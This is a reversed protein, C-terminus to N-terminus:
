VLELVQGFEVAILECRKGILHLPQSLPLASASGIPFVPFGEPRKARLAAKRNKASTSPNAVAKATRATNNAIAPAPRASQLMAGVLPKM